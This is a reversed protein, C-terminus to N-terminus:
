DSGARAIVSQSMQQMVFVVNAKKRIVIGVYGEGHICLNMMM